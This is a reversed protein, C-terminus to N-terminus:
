QKEKALLKALSSGGPFGRLGQVLAMEVAKWTEGNSGEIAGSETNPWTGYRALHDKAWVLIQRRSLKPLRARNRVGRHEQLLCALSSGGPLGRGGTSLASEIALWTEGPADVIDGSHVKPWSGTLKHHADAWALIQCITLNPTSARNRANRESALLKALSTGGTLSRGGSRLAADINCWTEGRAQMVEGSNLNPWSGTAAEHSDAWALIQEQSLPPLDHVNRVDRHQALLKALSSKGALGRLGYILANDVMRWTEGLTAQVTGSSYKPWKGTRERHDDAWALIMPITFQPRPM